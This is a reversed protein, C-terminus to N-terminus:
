ERRVKVEQWWEEAEVQSVEEDNSLCKLFKYSKDDFARDINDTRCELNNDQNEESHIRRVPFSRM